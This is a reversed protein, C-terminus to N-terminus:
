DFGKPKAREKQMVDLPVRGGYPNARALRSYYGFGAASAARVAAANETGYTTMIAFVYPRDPLNVIAWATSVGENGGWKFAIPINNPIPDKGPHAPQQIEM